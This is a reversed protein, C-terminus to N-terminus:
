APEVRVFLREEVKDLDDIVAVVIIQDHGVQDLDHQFYKPILVLSSNGQLYEHGITQVKEQHKM